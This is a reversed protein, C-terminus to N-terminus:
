GGYCGGWGGGYCGGYGGGYCGGGGHRGLDPVESGGSIAMMLVVSYMTKEEQTRFQVVSVYRRSCKEVRSVTTLLSPPGLSSPDPYPCAVPSTNSERPAMRKTCGTCEGWFGGPVVDNDTPVAAWGASRLSQNSYYSQYVSSDIAFHSTQM